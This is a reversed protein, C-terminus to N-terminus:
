ACVRQPRHGGMPEGIETIDSAGDITAVRELDAMSQVEFGAGVLGPEAALEAVHCCCGADSGRSDIHTDTRLMTTFGCDDLFVQMRDLNTVRLRPYLVEWLKIVPESM